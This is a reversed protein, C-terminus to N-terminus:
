KKMELKIDKKKILQKAEEVPTPTPTTPLGAKIKEEKIVASVDRECGMGCFSVKSCKSKQLIVCLGGLAGLVGVIFLMLENINFDEMRTDGTDSM